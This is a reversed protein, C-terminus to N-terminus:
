SSFQVMLGPVTSDDTVADSRQARHEPSYQVYVIEGMEGAKEILGERSVSSFGRFILASHRTALARVTHMPLHAFSLQAAPDAIIM